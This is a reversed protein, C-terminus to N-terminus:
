IYPLSLGRATDFWVAAAADDDAAAAIHMSRFVFCTALPVAITMQSISMRVSHLDFHVCM